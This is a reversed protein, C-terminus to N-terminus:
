WVKEFGRVHMTNSRVILLSYLHIVMKQKVPDFFDHILLFGDVGLVELEPLNAMKEQWNKKGFVKLEMNELIEAKMM